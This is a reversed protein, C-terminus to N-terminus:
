KLDITFCSGVGLESKVGVTGGHLEVIRKVLALGLGTGEYKRNLAGDIQVFRQFLKEFNEPAIGIGTDAVAIRLKPQNESGDLIVQTAELIVNGNNPTFKVANNLLNILVQLIRREDIAIKPLEPQIKVTIQIQKKNAQPQVFTVSSHCLPAIATPAFHLKFHGSEITSLDLIDNILSLLHNGSSAITQLADQQDDNITGFIGEHLIETMGLVAILPTRLEHSITALFEDKLRNARMLETTTAELQQMQQNLQKDREMLQEAMSNFGQALVGVEDQTDVPIRTTLNGSALQQTAKTLRLIRRSLAQTIQFGGLTVVIILISGLFGFGGVVFWLRKGAREVDETSKLIAIKFTVRDFSELELTDIWYETNAIVRKIPPEDTEPFQWSRTRDIPLTTATIRDGQFAVLHMSTDGRMFQLLNDDLAAGAVFGGIIKQPSKISNLEVMTTPMADKALVFGSVELGKAAASDIASELLTIKGLSNLQSSVLVQGNTNLIKVLDLQLATQLPLVKKLLLARDGSAIADIVDKEESVLRTKLRLSEQRQKFSERLLTVLDVIENKATLELNNRAYYGFGLTGLAWLSLFALLLPSLLKFSVPLRRYRTRM